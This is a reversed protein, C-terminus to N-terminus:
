RLHRTVAVVSRERERKALVVVVFLPLHFAHCFHWGDPVAALNRRPWAESERHPKKAHATDRQGSVATLQLSQNRGGPSCLSSKREPSPLESLHLTQLLLQTAGEHEYSTVGSRRARASGRLMAWLDFCTTEPAPLKLPLLVCLSSPILAVFSM